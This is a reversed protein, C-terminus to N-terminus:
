YCTESMPRKLLVLVAGTGGGGPPASCFALVQPIQRLWLNLKNKLVPVQTSRHGKGHIIRVCRLGRAGAEAFFAGLRRRTEDVTAGHLDLEAEVPLAGRRLRLLWKPQVGPQSFRLVDGAQSVELEIAESVPLDRAVDAADKLDKRLRRPPPKKPSFAAAETKLPTVEAMSQRFFLRDEESIKDM